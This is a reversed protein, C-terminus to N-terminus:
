KILNFQMQINAQVLIPGVWFVDEFIEGKDDIIQFNGGYRIENGGFTTVQDVLRVNKIQEGASSAMIRAKAKADEIAKVLAENEAEKPNKLGFLISDIRGVGSEAILRVIGKTNSTGDVTLLVRHTMKYGIMKQKGSNYEYYPSLNMQVTKWSNRDIGNALFNRYIQSSIEANKNQAEESTKGITEISFQFKTQDPIKEISAAGQVIVGQLQTAEASTLFGSIIFGAMALFFIWKKM